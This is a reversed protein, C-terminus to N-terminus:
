EKRWMQVSPTGERYARVGLQDKAAYIEKSTFGRTKGAALVESAVKPSTGLEQELFREASGIAPGDDDDPEYEEFDQGNEDDDGNGNGPYGDPDPEAAARTPGENWNGPIVVNVKHRNKGPCADVKLVGNQRWTRILKSIRMCHGKDALDLELRQAVAAGIWREKAQTGLLYPNGAQDARRAEARVAEMDATTVGDFPKPYDFRELAAVHDGNALHVDVLHAWTAADAPAMNGRDRDIRFYSRHVKDGKLGAAGAEAPTMRNLVRSSRCANLIASAGRADDSTIEGQGKLMKRVHHLLGIACNCEVAIQGLRKIFKDIATNDNEGISHCSILPDLIVIDIKLEKIKAVFWAIAEEDFHVKGSGPSTAFNLPVDHGSDYFLRGDAALKERDIKHLQCAATIRRELEDRPDEGNWYWVRLPEITKDEDGAMFNNGSTMIVSEAIAQTTKGANSAAITASVFDRVYHRGYLWIRRPITAPDRAVYRTPATSSLLKSKTTQHQRTDDIDPPSEPDPPAEPEPNPPPEKLAKQTAEDIEAKLWDISQEIVILSAEGNKFGRQLAMRFVMLANAIPRNLRRAIGVLEAIQNRFIKIRFDGPGGVAGDPEALDIVSRASEVAERFQRWALTEADTVKDDLVGGNAKTAPPPEPEPASEGSTPGQEERFSRSIFDDPNEDVSM